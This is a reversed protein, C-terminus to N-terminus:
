QNVSQRRKIRQVVRYVATIDWNGEGTATSIGDQKLRDVIKQYTFGKCRLRGILAETEAPLIVPRGLTKGQAKLEALAAKIRQSIKNREFEAFGAFITIQLRGNPSGTDVDVDLLVLRWGNREAQKVIGLVDWTDRGLRDLQSAALIGAPDDPNELREIAASLAPRRASPVSGSVTEERIWEVPLEKYDAWKQIASEQASIGLGSANQEETSVRLYGLVCANATTETKNKM